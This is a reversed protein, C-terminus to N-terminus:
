NEKLELPIRFNGIPNSIIITDGADIGMKEMWTSPALMRNGVYEESGVFRKLIITDKSYQEAEHKKKWDVSRVEVVHDSRSAIELLIPNSAYAIFMERLVGAKENNLVAEVRKAIEVRSNPIVECIVGGPFRIRQADPSPIRDHLHVTRKLSDFGLDRM